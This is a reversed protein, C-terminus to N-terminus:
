SSVGEVDLSGAAIGFDWRQWLCRAEHGEAASTGFDMSLICHGSAMHLSVHM